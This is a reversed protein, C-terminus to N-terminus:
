TRGRYRDIPSVFTSRVTRSGPMGPAAVDAFSVQCTVTVSVNAPQGVPISFGSTDVSVTLSSCRLGQDALTHNATEHANVQAAGATRSISAARAADHAAAEVSGAAIEIRMGIIAFAVLALMPPTLIVAELAASGEDHSPRRRIM